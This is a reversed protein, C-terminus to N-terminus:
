NKLGSAVDTVHQYGWAWNCFEEFAMPRAIGFGQVHRCGLSVLLSKEAENEVGEALCEIELTACLDIIAKLLRKKTLDEAVGSVFDRDIKIRDM